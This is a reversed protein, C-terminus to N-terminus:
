CDGAVAIGALFQAASFICQICDHGLVVDLHGLPRELRVAVGAVRAIWHHAVVARVACSMYSRQVNLIIKTFVLPYTAPM